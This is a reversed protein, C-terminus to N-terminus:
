DFREVPGRLAQRRVRAIQQETLPQRAWGSAADLTAHLDRLSDRHMLNGEEQVHQLGLMHGLEHALIVGNPSGFRTSEACFVTQAEPVYVGTSRIPFRNLLCVNWVRRRLAFPQTPAIRGFFRRLDRKRSIAGVRGAEQTAIFQEARALLRWRIGSCRWLRNVEALMAEIDEVAAHSSFEPEDTFVLSHVRISLVLAAHRVRRSVRALGGQPEDGRSV